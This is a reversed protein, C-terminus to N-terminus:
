ARRLPLLLVRPDGDHLCAVGEDVKLLICRAFCSGGMEECGLGEITRLDKCFVSPTHTMERVNEM